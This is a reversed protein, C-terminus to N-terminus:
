AQCNHVYHWGEGCVVELHLNKVIETSNSQHLTAQFSFPFIRNTSMFRSIRNIKYIDWTRGHSQTLYERALVFWLLEKKLLLADNQKCRLLHKTQVYKRLFFQNMYKFHWFIQGLIYVRPVTLGEIQGGWIFDGVTNRECGRIAKEIFKRGNEPSRDSNIWHLWM